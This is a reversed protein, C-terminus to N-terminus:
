ESGYQLEEYKKTLKEWNFGIMEMFSIHGDSLPLPGIDEFTLWKDYIEWEWGDGDVIKSWPSHATEDVEFRGIVVCPNEDEPNIGAIGFGSLIKIGESTMRALQLIKM